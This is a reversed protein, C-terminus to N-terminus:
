RGEAPAPKRYYGYYNYYQATHVPEAGNLVVGLIRSRGIADTARKILDFPTENARVVLITGDVMAALLHADSLLVTPPTDIIVWDFAERAEDILRRMRDSTLGGMPDHTPQGAPLVTLNPSVQCVNLPAEVRSSLGESLGSQAVIGFIGDLSPRRLDADILLVRRHYSESMTLALNSATLTKGEGAVASAVMVVKIGSANQGAHLVAGLRRYQERSAATMHADIVLKQTVEADVHRFGLASAVPGPADPKTMVPLARQDPERAEPAASARAAPAAPMEDPFAEDFTAVDAPSADVVAQPQSAARRLAEDVRGM